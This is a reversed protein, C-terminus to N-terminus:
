SATRRRAAMARALDEESVLERRAIEAESARLSALTEADSLIEITEELSDLDDVSVLVASPHGHVTVTVREHQGHVRAVLASLHAKVEALALQTTMTLLIVM